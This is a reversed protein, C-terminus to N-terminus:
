LHSFGLPKHESQWLEIFELVLWNDQFPSSGLLSMLSWETGHKLCIASFIASSPSQQSGAWTDKPQEQLAQGLLFSFQQYTNLCTASGADSQTPLYLDFSKHKQCLLIDM